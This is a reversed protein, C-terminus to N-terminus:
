NSTIEMRVEEVVEGGSTARPDITHVKGEALTATLIPIYAENPVITGEEDRGDWTLTHNGPPLIEPTRLTRVPDSDSTFIGVTVAAAQDLRVPIKFTQGRAPAFEFREYDGFSAAAYTLGPAGCALALLLIFRSM